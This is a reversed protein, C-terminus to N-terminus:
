RPIRAASSPAVNACSLRGRLETLVEYFRSLVAVSSRSSRLRRELGPGAVLAAVIAPMAASGTTVRGDPSVAHAAELQEAEPIGVLLEKSEQIPRIRLTQRVDLAKVTRAFASCIRCEGDYLLFYPRAARM